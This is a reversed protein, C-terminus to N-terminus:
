LHEVDIQKHVDILNFEISTFSDLADGRLKTPPPPSSKHAGLSGEGLILKDETKPWKIKFISFAFNAHTLFFLYHFTTMEPPVDGCIEWRPVRGGAKSAWSFQSKATARLKKPLRDCSATLHGSKAQGARPFFSKCFVHSQHGFLQALHAAM